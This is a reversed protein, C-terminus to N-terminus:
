REQNIVIIYKQCGEKIVNTPLTDIGSGDPLDIHTMRVNNQM